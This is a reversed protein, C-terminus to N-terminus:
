LACHSRRRISRTSDGYYCPHVASASVRDYLFPIVALVTTEKSEGSTLFSNDLQETHYSDFGRYYIKVTVLFHRGPVLDEAINIRVGANAQLTSIFLSLTIVLFCTFKIPRSTQIMKDKSSLTKLEAALAYRKQFFWISGISPKKLMWPQTVFVYLALWQTFGRLRLNQVSSPLAVGCRFRGCQRCCIHPQRRCVGVHSLPRSLIAFKPSPRIRGASCAIDLRPVPGRKREVSIRYALPWFVLASCIFRCAISFKGVTVNM